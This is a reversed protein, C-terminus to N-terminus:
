QSTNFPQYAKPTIFPATTDVTVTSGPNSSWDGVRNLNDRARVRFTFIGEGPATFAATTTAVANQWLIWTGGNIQYQVDFSVIESGASPQGSWTVQVNLSNSVSPWFPTIMASPPGASVTTGAQAVSSWDQVNGANDTARARFEYLSGDNGGPFQASTSTVATQWNTWSGGNQRYQVDYNKIGSLNDTGMWTVTFNPDSFQPLGQVSASPPQTDVTTGAQANSPWPEINGANDVARCRFEYLVGNQGGTFNTSTETVQARWDVWNGGNQRMQVDYYKIGSQNDTGSWSVTFNAPSYQPLGNVSSVPPTTDTDVTYTIILRPFQGNNANLSSFVRERQQPTEDVRSCSASTRGAATLGNRYPM